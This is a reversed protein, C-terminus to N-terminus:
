GRARRRTTIWTTVAAAGVGIARHLAADLEMWASGPGTLEKGVVGEDDLRVAQCHM